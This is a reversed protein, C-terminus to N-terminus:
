HSMWPKCLRAGYSTKSAIKQYLTKIISIRLVGKKKKQLIHGLFPYALGMQGLCHSLSSLSYSASKSQGPCVCRCGTLVILIAMVIVGPVELSLDQLCEASKLLIWSCMRSIQMSNFFFLLFFLFTTPLPLSPFSSSFAQLLSSPQEVKSQYEAWLHLSSLQCASKVKRSIGSTGACLELDSELYKLTESSERVVPWVQLSPLFTHLKNGLPEWKYGIRLAQGRSSQLTPVNLSCLGPRQKRVEGMRVRSGSEFQLDVRRIM